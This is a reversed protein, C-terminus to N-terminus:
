LQVGAVDNQVVRSFDPGDYYARFAFAAGFADHLEVLDSQAVAIEIGTGINGIVPARGAARDECIFLVGADAARGANGDGGFIEAVGVPELNDFHLRERGVNQFARYPAAANGAVAFVAHRRDASIDVRFALGARGDAGVRVGAPAFVFNVDHGAVGM